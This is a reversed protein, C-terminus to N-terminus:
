IASAQLDLDDALEYYIRMRRRVRVKIHEPTPGEKKKNWTSLSVIRRRKVDVCYYIRANIKGLVGGKDRLEFFDEIPEVDITLSSKPNDSMALEKVQMALHHYQDPSLFDQAEEFSHSDILATWQYGPEPGGGQHVGVKFQKKPEV